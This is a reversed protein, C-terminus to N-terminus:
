TLEVRWTGLKPLPRAREYQHLRVQYFLVKWCLNCGGENEFCVIRVTMDRAAATNPECLATVLAISFGREITNTPM